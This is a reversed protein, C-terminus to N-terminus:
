GLRLTWDSSGRLYRSVPLVKCDPGSQQLRPCDAVSSTFKNSLGFRPPAMATPYRSGYTSNSSFYICAGGARAFTSSPGVLGPTSMARMLSREQPSQGEEDM